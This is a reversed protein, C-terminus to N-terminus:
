EEDTETIKEGHHDRLKNKHKRLQRALKDEMLDIATYLDRDHAKAVIEVGPVSVIAEVVKTENEVSLIVKTSVIHDFFHETKGVKEEVYTKIAETVEVHRGTIQINM